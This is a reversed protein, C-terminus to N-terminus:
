RGEKRGEKIVRKLGRSSVIAVTSTGEDEKRGDKREEKV